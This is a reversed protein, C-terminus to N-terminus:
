ASLMAGSECGSGNGSSVVVQNRGARKAAYLAADARRLVAAFDGEDLAAVTAGISTTLQLTQGDVLLPTCEVTARIREALALADQLTTDPVLVVFEEGGIRGIVDNARLKARINSVLERLAKDGVAHGFRDNVGKFHDADLLLVGVPKGRRAAGRMLRGAAETLALRNNVGTLPDLRALLHLERQLIENYLLLFAVSAFLPQMGAFLIYFYNIASPETLGGLVSSGLWLQGCRWIVLLASMTCTVLLVTRARSRGAVLAQVQLLINAIIAVSGWLVRSRYDPDILGFWAVGLYGLVGIAVVLRWRLPEGLLMRLAIVGMGQAILNFANGGLLMQAPSLWAQLALAGWGMSEVALAAARLLLSTHARGPRSRTGAWMMAALALSQLASILSLTEIHM